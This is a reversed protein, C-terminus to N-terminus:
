ITGGRSIRDFRSSSNAVAWLFALTEQAIGQYIEFEEPKNEQMERMGNLLGEVLYSPEKFAAELEWDDLEGEVNQFMLLALPAPVFVCRPRDFLSGAQLIKTGRKVAFAETLKHKAKLLGDITPMIRNKVDEEKAKEFSILPGLLQEMDMWLVRATLARSMELGCILDRAQPGVSTIRIVNTIGFVKGTEGAAPKSDVEEDDGRYVMKSEFGAIL